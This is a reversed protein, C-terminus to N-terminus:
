GDHVRITLQYEIYNPNQYKLPNKPISKTINLIIAHAEIIEFHKANSLKFHYIEYCLYHKHNIIVNYNLHYVQIIVM